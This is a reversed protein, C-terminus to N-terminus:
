PAKSPRSCAPRPPDLCRTGRMPSAAGKPSFPGDRSARGRGPRPVARPLGAPGPIGTGAEPADAPSGSGRALSGRRATRPTGTSAHHHPANRDRFVLCPEQVDVALVLARDSSTAVPLGVEDCAPADDDNIQAKACLGDGA